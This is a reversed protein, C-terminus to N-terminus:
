QRCQHHARAARVRRGLCRATGCWTVARSAPTTCAAPPTHQAAQAAPGTGSTWGDTQCTDCYFQNPLFPPFCKSPTTSCSNSPSSQRYFAKKLPQRKLPQEPTSCKQWHAPFTILGGQGCQVKKFHAPKCLGPSCTGAGWGESEAPLLVFM